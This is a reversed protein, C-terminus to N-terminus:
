CYIGRKEVRRETRTKQIKANLSSQGANLYEDQGRHMKKANSKGM